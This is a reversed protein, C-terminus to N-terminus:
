GCISRSPSTRASSRSSPTSEGAPTATVSSAPYNEASEELFFDFPNHVAMEVVLNVEVDLRPM